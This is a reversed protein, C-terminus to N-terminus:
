GEFDSMLDYAPFVKRSPETPIDALKPDDWCRMAGEPATREEFHEEELEGCPIVIPREDSYCHMPCLGQDLIARTHPVDHMDCVPFEEIDSDALYGCNRVACLIV